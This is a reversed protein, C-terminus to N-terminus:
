EKGNVLYKFTCICISTIILSSIIISILPFKYQSIALDAAADSSFLLSSMLASFTKGTGSPSVPVLIDMVIAAATASSRFFVGSVISCAAEIVAEARSRPARPLEPTMKDKSNRPM